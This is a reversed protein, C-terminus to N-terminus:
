FHAASAQKTREWQGFWQMQDSDLLYRTFRDSKVTDDMDLAQRYQSRNAPDKSICSIMEQDRALLESTSRQGLPTAFQGLSSYVSRHEKVESVIQDAETKCKGAVSTHSCGTGFAFVVGLVFMQKM